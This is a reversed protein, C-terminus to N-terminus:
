GFYRYPTMDPHLIWIIGPYIPFYFFNVTFFDCNVARSLRYSLIYSTLYDASPTYSKKIHLCKNNHFVNLKQDESNQSWPVLEKITM